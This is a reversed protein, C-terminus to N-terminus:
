KSFCHYVVLAGQFGLARWCLGITRCPTVCISHDAISQNDQIDRNRIGYFGLFLGGGRICARQFNVLFGESYLGDGFIFWPSVIPIRHAYNFYHLFISLPYISDWYKSKNKQSTKRMFHQQRQKPVSHHIQSM